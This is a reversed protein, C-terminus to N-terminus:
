YKNTAHIHGEDGSRYIPLFDLSNTGLVNWELTTNIISICVEVLHSGQPVRDRRASVLDGIVQLLEKNIGYLVRSMMTRLISM